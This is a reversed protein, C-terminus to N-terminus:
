GYPATDPVSALTPRPGDLDIDVHSFLPDTVRRLNRILPEMRRREILWHRLGSDWEGGAQRMLPELESPCRVAVMGCFDSFEAPGIRTPLRAIM